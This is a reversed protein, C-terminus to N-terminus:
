QSEKDLPLEIIIEAGKLAKSNYNYQTNQIKINGNLHNCIILYVMYLSLGKGREKFKTSYYPEFVRSIVEESIGGGSDKLSIVMNEKEKKLSFFVYRENNPIKNLLISEFSNNYISSFIKILVTENGYINADVQMDRIYVIDNEKYNICANEEVCDFINKLSLSEISKIESHFVSNFDEIISSLYMSESVISDTFKIIEENSIEDELEVSFKMSAAATTIGNLPQRWQHAINTMMDSLSIIKSQLFLQKEQEQRLAQEKNLKEQNYIVALSSEVAIRFQELLLRQQKTYKNYKADLVCITGFIEGEPWMIPMGMYSIMGLSVDPNDKWNPDALADSVILTEKTDMVRECYLGTNLDAREGVEYVNQKNSSKVFVEITDRNVKMILGAPVNMVEAMLDITKQWSRIVDDTIKQHSIVYKSKKPM